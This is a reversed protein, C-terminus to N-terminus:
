RPNQVWGIVAMVAGAMMGLIGTLGIFGGVAFLQPRLRPDSSHHPPRAATPEPARGDHPM